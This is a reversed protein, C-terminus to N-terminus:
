LANEYIRYEIRGNPACGFFEVSNETVFFGKKKEPELGGSPVYGVMCNSTTIERWMYDESETKSWAMMLPAYGMQHNITAHGNSDALVSDVMALKLYNYDSNLIFREGFESTGNTAIDVGSRLFGYLRIKYEDTTGNFAYIRIESENSFVELIESSAPISEVTQWNDNSYVGTILPVTGLDHPITDYQIPFEDKYRLTGEFFYVIKDMPYDSDLYFNNPNPM